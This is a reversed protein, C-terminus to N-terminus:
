FIENLSKYNKALMTLYSTIYMYCLNFFEQSTYEGGNKYKVM